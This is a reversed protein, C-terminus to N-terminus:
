TSRAVNIAGVLGLATTLIAASHEPQIASAIAACLLILGRWTSNQTLRVVIKEMM